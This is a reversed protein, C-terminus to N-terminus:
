KKTILFIIITAFTIVKKTLEFNIRKKKVFIRAKTALFELFVNSINKPVINAFKSRLFNKAKWKKEYRQLTFFTSLNPSSAVVSFFALNTIRKEASTIKLGCKGTIKM